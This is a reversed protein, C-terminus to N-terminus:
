RYQIEIPVANSITRVGDPASRDFTISAAYFRFGVLVRDNPIHLQAAALGSGDLRGVFNEFLPFNPVISLYFLADPQLPVVRSSPLPIGPADNFSLGVQYFLGGASPERLSLGVTQGIAPTGIVRLTAPVIVLSAILQYRYGGVDYLTKVRYSGAPVQAHNRDRQDWPWQYKQGPRVPTPVSLAPHSYVTENKRNHVIWPPQHAPIYITSPGRNDLIVLVTRGVEVTDPKVTFSVGQAAAAPAAVLQGTLIAFCGLTIVWPTARGSRRSPGTAPSTRLTTAM